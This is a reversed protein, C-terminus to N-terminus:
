GPGVPPMADEQCCAAHYCVEASRALLPDGARSTERPVGNIVCVLPEYVGMIEGCIGCRPPWTAFSGREYAEM